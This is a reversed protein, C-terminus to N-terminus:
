FDLPKKVKKLNKEDKKQRRGGKKRFRRSEKM